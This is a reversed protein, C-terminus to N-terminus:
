KEVWLKLCKRCQRLTGPAIVDAQSGCECFAIPVPVRPAPPPGQASIPIPKKPFSMPRYFTAAELARASLHELRVLDVTLGPFPQRPKDTPHGFAM